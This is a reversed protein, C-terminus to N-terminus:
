KIRKWMYTVIYPQVNNHAESNGSSAIGSSNKNHGSYWGSKEQTTIGLSISGLQSSHITSGFVLVSGGNIFAHTHKPLEEETLKHTYEGGTTNAEFIVSNSNIDTGTGTGILTKGEAYSEWTGGMIDEPNINSTSIYISGVPYARDLIKQNIYSELDEIPINIAGGSTAIQIQGFIKDIESKEVQASNSYKKSADEALKFIGNEGITFNLTVGALILLLIITIVLSILTIGRYLPLIDHLRVNGNNNKQIVIQNIEAEKNLIKRKM